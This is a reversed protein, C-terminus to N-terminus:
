FARKSSEAEWKEAKKVMEKLWAEDEPKHDSYESLYLLWYWAGDIRRMWHTKRYIESGISYRVFVIAWGGKQQTDAVEMTDLIEDRHKAQYASSARLYGQDTLRDYIKPILDNPKASGFDAQWRTSEHYAYLAISLALASFVLPLYQLIAKKRSSRGGRAPAPDTSTATQAPEPPEVLHVPETEVSPVTNPTGCKPCPFTGGAHSAKARLRQGCQCEIALTKEPM